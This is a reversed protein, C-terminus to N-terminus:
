TEECARILEQAPTKGIFRKLSRTLHAQDFYGLEFVTDLIPTGQQLLLSARKARQVQRIYAQSVGMTHQFRHRLTRSAVAIPEDELVATILPDRVLVNQKALRELFTDANDFDPLQWTAGNMWFGNFATEPLTKETDVTHKAPLFPMYTGVKFRIWLGELGEVWAVQGSSTLAGTVVVRTMDQVKVFILHMQYESPRISIGESVTRGRTISEVFPSDSLREEYVLSMADEM